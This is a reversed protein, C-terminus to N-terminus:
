YPFMKQDNGKEVLIQSSGQEDLDLNQLLSAEMEALMDDLETMFSTQMRKMLTDLSEQMLIAATGTLESMLLDSAEKFEGLLEKARAQDKKINGATGTIGETDYYIKGASRGGGENEKSM